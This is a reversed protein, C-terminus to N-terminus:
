FFLKNRFAQQNFHQSSMPKAGFMTNQATSSFVPAHSSTPQIPQMVSNNNMPQLPAMGTGDLAAFGGKNQQSAMANMSLGPGKAHFPNTKQLGSSMFPNIAGAGSPRSVLNDFNVLNAGKGLFDTPTKRMKENKQAASTTNQSTLTGVEGGLLDNEPAVQPTMPTMVPAVAPQSVPAPTPDSIPLDFFSDPKAAPVSDAQPPYSAASTTASASATGFSDDFATWSAGPAASAKPAAPAPTGWPDSSSPTAAQQPANSFSEWSTAPAAKQAAPPATVVPTSSSSAWPDFSAQPQTSAPPAPTVTAAPQILNGTTPQTPPASERSMALALELQLKEEEANAPRARDYESNTQNRETSGSGPQDEFNLEEAMSKMFIKM